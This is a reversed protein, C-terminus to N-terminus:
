VPIWRGLNLPLKYEAQPITEVQRDREDSARQEADLSGLEILGHEKVFTCDSDVLGRQIVPYAQCILPRQEYIGCQGGVLHPCRKTALQYAIIDGGSKFLPTISRSSFRKAEDPTLYLGYLNGDTM